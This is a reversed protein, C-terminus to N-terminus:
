SGEPCCIPKLWHPRECRFGAHGIDSDNQGLSSLVGLRTAIAISLNICGM